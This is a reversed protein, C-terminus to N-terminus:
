TRRARRRIRRYLVQIALYFTSLVPRYVLTLFVAAGGSILLLPRLVSSLRRLSVTTFLAKQNVPTAQQTIIEKLADMIQADQNRLLLQFLLPFALLSRLSSFCHTTSRCLCQTWRKRTAESEIFSCRSFELLHDITSNSQILDTLNSVFRKEISSREENMQSFDSEGDGRFSSSRSNIALLTLAIRNFTEWRWWHSSSDYHIANNNTNTLAPPSIDYPLPSVFLPKFISLCPNASATTWCPVFRTRHPKHLHVILSNTTQSIRVPGWTAHMCLSQGRVDALSLDTISSLSANSPCRSPHFNCMQHDRLINMMSMLDVKKNISELLSRSRCARSRGQGFFSYTFDSMSSWDLYYGEKQSLQLSGGVKLIHKLFGRSVTVDGDESVLTDEDIDFTAQQHHGHSHDGDTSRTNRRVFLRKNITPANSISAVGHRISQLVWHSGTTEIIFAEDYDCVLFANHYRFSSDHVSCSGGQGHKELLSCIVSAAEHATQGRELGLRLLDMGLLGNEKSPSEITWMAENGIAVGHENCGMEAGWMWIPKCLLVAHTHRVQPITIYTARLSMGEEHEMAPFFVIEQAENPHRDSNKAFIVSGDATADGLAVMTDCPM